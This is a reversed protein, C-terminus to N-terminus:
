GTPEGVKGGGSALKTPWGLHRLNIGKRDLADPGEPDSMLLRDLEAGRQGQNHSVVAGSLRGDDLTELVGSSALEGWVALTPVEDMIGLCTLGRPAKSRTNVLGLVLTKSLQAILLFDASLDLEAKVSRASLLEGESSTQLDGQLLVGSGLLCKLARKAPGM